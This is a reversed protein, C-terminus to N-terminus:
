WSCPRPARWTTSAPVCSAACTSATQARPHRDRHIPTRLCMRLPLAATCPRRAAAQGPCRAGFVPKLPGVAAEILRRFEVLLIEQLHCPSPLPASCGTRKRLRCRRSPLELQHRVIIHSLLQKQSAAVGAVVSCPAVRRRGVLAGCRASAASAGTASSSRRPRRWSQFHRLLPRPAVGAPAASGGAPPAGLSPSSPPPLAPPLAPGM